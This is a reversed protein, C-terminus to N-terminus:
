LVKAEKSVSAHNWAILLMTHPFFLNSAQSTLSTIPRHKNSHTMAGVDENPKDRWRVAHRRIEVLSGTLYDWPSVQKM